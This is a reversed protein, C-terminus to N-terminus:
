TVKETAARTRGELHVSWLAKHRLDPHGFVAGTPWYCLIFIQNADDNTSRPGLGQRLVLLTWLCSQVARLLPLASDCGGCSFLEQEIKPVMEVIVIVMLYCNQFAILEWKLITRSIKFGFFALSLALYAYLPFQCSPLKVKPVCHGLRMIPMTQVFPMTPGRCLLCQRCLQCQRGSQPWFLYSVLYAYKANDSLAM